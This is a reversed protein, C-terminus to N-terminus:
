PGQTFLVSRNFAVMNHNTVSQPRASCPLQDYQGAFVPRPERFVIRAGQPASKLFHKLIANKPAAQLAVIWATASECESAQVGDGWVVRITDALGGAEVYNRACEAAKKDKDLAIVKAGTLRALYIATFPVAGCGINAVVDGDGIAALKVEREVVGLYLRSYLSALPPLRTLAKELRGNLVAKDDMIQAIRNM